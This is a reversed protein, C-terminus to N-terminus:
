VYRGTVPLHNQLQNLCLSQAQLKWKQQRYRKSGECCGALERRGREGARMKNNSGRQSVGATGAPDTQMLTIQLPQYAQSTSM